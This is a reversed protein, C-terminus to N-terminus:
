FKTRTDLRRYLEAGLVTTGAPVPQIARVRLVRSHRPPLLDQAVTVLLGREAYLFEHAFAGPVSIEQSLRADPEGLEDLALDEPVPTVELMIVEAGRAYAVIARDAGDPKYTHAQAPHYGLEVEAPESRPGLLEDLQDLLLPWPGHWDALRLKLLPDLFGTPSPKPVPDTLNPNPDPDTM